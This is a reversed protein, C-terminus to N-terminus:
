GHGARRWWWGSPDAPRPNGAQPPLPTQTGDVFHVREAGGDRLIASAREVLDREDSHVAVLHDREATMRRDDGPRAPDRVGPQRSKQIGGAVFGVTAGGIVGLFVCLAVRAPGSLTSDGAAVWLLAIVLGFVAGIGGAVVTGVFAGKAQSPTMILGAPGAWSEALEDQMEARLEGIEEPGPEDGPRRRSIAAAPIGAAALREVASTAAEDSAFAAVTNYPRAPQPDGQEAM